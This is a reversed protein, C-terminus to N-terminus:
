VHTFIREQVRCQNLLPFLFNEDLGLTLCEEVTLSFYDPAIRQINKPLLEVIDEARAGMACMTGIGRRLRNLFCGAQYNKFKELASLRNGPMNNSAKESVM